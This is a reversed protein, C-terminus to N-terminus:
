AVACTNKFKLLVSPCNLMGNEYNEIKQPVSKHIPAPGFSGHPAWVPETHLAGSLGDVLNGLSPGTPHESFELNRNFFLHHDGDNKHDIFLKTCIKEFFVIIM